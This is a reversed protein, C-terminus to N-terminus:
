SKAPKRSMLRQDQCRNCRRDQPRAVVKEGLRIKGVDDGEMFAVV